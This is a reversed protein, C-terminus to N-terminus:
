SGRTWEMVRWERADNAKSVFANVITTGGSLEQTAGGATRTVTQPAFALSGSVVWGRYRPSRAENTLKFTLEGGHITGGAKYIEELVTRGKSCSECGPDEVAALVDVDGTAQAHNILEVYYKVFAIAGAKTDAKAEEPLVPASPTTSVPSTSPSSPSPSPDAKPDGGCGALALLLVVAPIVARRM